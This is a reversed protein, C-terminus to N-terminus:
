HHASAAGEGGVGIGLRGVTGADAVCRKAGARGIEDGADDLAEVGSHRHDSITPSALRSCAQFFM